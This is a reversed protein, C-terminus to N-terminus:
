EFKLLIKKLLGALVLQEKKSLADILVEENKVHSVVAKKILTLGKKTLAILVGRGDDPNAKRIILSMKELKDLRNTLAGSTIMVSDLLQNPTLTYPSGNRLLTAMVDFEGFNLDFKKYVKVIEPLIYNHVRDIRVIVAVPTTDIDPMENQWQELIEDVKDKKMM